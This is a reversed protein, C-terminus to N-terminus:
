PNDTTSAVPLGAKLVNDYMDAPRIPIGLMKDGELIEDDSRWVIEEVWKGSDIAVRLVSAKVSGPKAALLIRGFCYAIADGLTVFKMSRWRYGCKEEGWTDAFFVEEGKQALIEQQLVSLARDDADKIM